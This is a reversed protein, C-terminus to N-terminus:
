FPAKWLEERQMVEGANEQKGNLDEPWFRGVAMCTDCRLGLPPFFSLLALFLCHSKVMVKLDSLSPPEVGEFTKARALTRNIAVRAATMEVGAM